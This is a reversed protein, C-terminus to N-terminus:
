APAKRDLMVFHKRVPELVEFTGAFGAPIVCAQGPGFEAAVGDTDSIRIRGELVFFYEQRHPGFEIRWAGPECSWEGCDFEGLADTYFPQTVRQPNGRVLRAAAPHDFITEGAQEPAFTVLTPQTMTDTPLATM